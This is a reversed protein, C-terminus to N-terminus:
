VSLITSNQAVCFRSESKEGLFGLNKRMRIKSKTEPKAVDFLDHPQATADFERKQFSFEDLV